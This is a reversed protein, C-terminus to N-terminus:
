LATQMAYVEIFTGYSQIWGTRLCAFSLNVPTDAKGPTIAFIDKKYRHLLLGMSVNRYSHFRCPKITFYVTMGWYRGPIPELVGSSVWITSESSGSLRGEADTTKVKSAAVLQLNFHSCFGLYWPSVTSMGLSGYWGVSVPRVARFGGMELRWVGGKCRTDGSLCLGRSWQTKM